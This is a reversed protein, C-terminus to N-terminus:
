LTRGMCILSISFRSLQKFDDRTGAKYMINSLEDRDICGSSDQPTWAPDPCECWASLRSRVELPRPFVPWQLKEQQTSKLPLGGERVLCFVPYWQTVVPQLGPARKLVCSRSPILFVCPQFQARLVKGSEVPELLRSRCALRGYEVSTYSENPM